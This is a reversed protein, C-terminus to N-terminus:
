NLWNRVGQVFASGAFLLVQSKDTGDNFYLSHMLFLQYYFKGDGQKEDTSVTLNAEKEVWSIKPSFFNCNRM